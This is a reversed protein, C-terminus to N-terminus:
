AAPHGHLEGVLEGLAGLAQHQDGGAAEPGLDRRGDPRDRGRAEVLQHAHERQGAYPVEALGAQSCVRSRSSTASIKSEKLSGWARCAIRWTTRATTSQRPWITVM